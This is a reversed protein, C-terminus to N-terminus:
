LWKKRGKKITDNMAKSLILLFHFVSLFINIQSVIYTNKVM